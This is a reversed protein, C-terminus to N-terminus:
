VRKIADVPVDYTIMVEPRLFAEESHQEYETLPTVRKWYTDGLQTAKSTDGDSVAEVVADYLDLDSVYCQGPDVRLKLLVQDSSSSLKDADVLEGDTIDVVCGGVSVYGYLNDDRSVRGDVLNRPRLEDLLKDTRAVDSDSGKDGRSTRQLGDSFVSEVSDAEIEHFVTIM